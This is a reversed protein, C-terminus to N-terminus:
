RRKVLSKCSSFPGNQNARAKVRLKCKSVLRAQNPLMGCSRHCVNLWAHPIGSPEREGIKTLLGYGLTKNAATWKITVAWAKEGLETLQGRTKALRGYKQKATHTNLAQYAFACGHREVLQTYAIIWYAMGTRSEYSNLIKNLSYIAKSSTNINLL